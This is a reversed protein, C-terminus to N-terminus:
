ITFFPYELEKKHTNDNVCSFNYLVFKYFKNKKLLASVADSPLAAVPANSSSDRPMSEGPVVAAKFEVGAGQIYIYIHFM